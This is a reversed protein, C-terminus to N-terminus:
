AFARTQGGDVVVCAGTMFSARGSCLFVVVDAVEEVRGLRRFPVETELYRTVSEPEEQLRREWTGGPCLINGPAITNVRVHHSAVGRALSKGWSILASKAAAYTDPARITERGAISAILAISGGGGQIMHPLAERVLRVSGLLNIHLAIEWDHDTAEWGGAVAGSGINAILIDLRGWRQQVRALCQRISALLTMDGCFSLVRDSGFRTAITRAAETVDAETRGTV